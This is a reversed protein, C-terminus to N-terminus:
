RSWRVRNRDSGPKIWSSGSCGSSLPPVASRSCRSRWWRSPGPGTRRPRFTPFRRAMEANCGCALDSKSLTIIIALDNRASLYHDACQGRVLVVGGGLFTSGTAGTLCPPNARLGATSRLGGAQWRHKLVDEGRNAFCHQKTFTLQSVRRAAFITWPIFGGSHTFRATWSVVAGLELCAVKIRALQRRATAILNYKLLCKM